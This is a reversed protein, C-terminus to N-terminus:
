FALTRFTLFPTVSIHLGGQLVASYAAWGCVKSVTEAVVRGLQASPLACRRPQACGARKKKTRWLEQLIKIYFSNM